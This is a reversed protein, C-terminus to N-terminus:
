DKQWSNGLQKGFKKATDKEEGDMKSLIFDSLLLLEITVFLLFVALRNEM